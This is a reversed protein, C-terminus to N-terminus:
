KCQQNHLGQVSPNPRYLSMNSDGRGQDSGETYGAWIRHGPVLARTHYVSKPPSPPLLDTGVEGGWCKSGSSHSFCSWATLSVSEDMFIRAFRPSGGGLIVLLINSFGSTNSIGM